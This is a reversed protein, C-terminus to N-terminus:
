TRKTHKLSHAGHRRGEGSSGSSSSSNSSSSDGLLRGKLVGPNTNIGSVIRAAGEIQGTLSLLRTMDSKNIRTKEVVMKVSEYCQFTSIIFTKNM